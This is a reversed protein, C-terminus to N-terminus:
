ARNSFKDCGFLLRAGEFGHRIWFGERVSGVFFDKRVYSLVAEM